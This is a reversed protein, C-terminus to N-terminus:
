DTIPNRRPGHLHLPLPSLARVLFFPSVLMHTM